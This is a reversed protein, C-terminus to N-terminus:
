PSGSAAPRRVRAALEIAVRSAHLQSETDIALKGRVADVFAALQAAHGKDSHLWMRETAVGFRGPRQLRRWDELAASRGDAAVEVRETPFQTSGNSLYAITAISGDDFRLQLHANDEPLLAGGGELRWADCGAIRSGTLWQCFDVQHSAEGVIVGGGERPHHLWHERPRHGVNVRFVISMPGARDAFLARLKLALPAHRRNFGVMLVRGSARWAAEVDDLEAATLALPKEVFVHKGARLAASALPAHTDHRTLIVVADTEPDGVVDQADSSAYAFGYRKGLSQGRVGTASAIGRLTVPLKALAPVLENGAHSGAGIVGVRPPTGPPAPATTARPAALAVRKAVDVSGPYRLLIALPPSASAALLEDFARPADDVDFERAVLADTDVAGAAIQEVFAQMNRQETWRVYPLPYDHGELEYSADGTGPGYAMSTLLALEKFLYTERPGEIPTRGVVIVRGKRRCMRGALDVPGNDDSAATVIVADVGDGGSFAAASAEVSGGQLSAVTAWGREEALRLRVPDLDVGLVHCGAARLLQAVLTGVLGLGMVVVREGLRVDAVRVAQLAIAGLTTFAAQRPAVGEPLRVCLHKPVAVVEAHSAHGQGACAVRDGVAIGTVGAGVALVEGASSYGLTIPMDLARQAVTYAALVGQTRALKLVKMAQEPRALAKGVLSMRGLKVTGGETGSSILSYENRVLVFGDRVAPAPVDEVRIAGTRLDELVQKM